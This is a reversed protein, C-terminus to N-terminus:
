ATVTLSKTDLVTGSADLIQVQVTQTPSTIVTAAYYRIEGNQAPVSPLVTGNVVLRVRVVDAGEYTGTVWDTNSISYTDLSTIKNEQVPTGEHVVVTTAPSTETGNTETVALVTYPEQAPIVVTFSGDPQVLGSGLEVGTVQNKVIITNGPTDGKGTIITDQNTVPENVTPAPIDTSKHTVIITAAESWGVGTNQSVSITVGEAQAEDITVHYIGTEDVVGEGIVVD